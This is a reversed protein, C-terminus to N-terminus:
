RVAPTEQFIRWTIASYRSRDLPVQLIAEEVRQGV